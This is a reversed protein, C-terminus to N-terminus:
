HRQVGGDLIRDRLPVLDELLDEMPRGKGPRTISSRGVDQHSKGFGSVDVMLHAFRIDVSILATNNQQGHFDIEIRGFRAAAGINALHQEVYRCVFKAMSQAQRMDVPRTRYHATIWASDVEVIGRGAGSIDVAAAMGVEACDRGIQGSM